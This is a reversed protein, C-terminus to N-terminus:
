VSYDFSTKVLVAGHPAVAPASPPNRKKGQRVGSNLSSIFGRPPALSSAGGAGDPFHFFSPTPATGVMYNEKQSFM